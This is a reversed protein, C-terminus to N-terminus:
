KHFMESPPKAALYFWVSKGSKLIIKERQYASTEYEDIFKLEEPTVSIIIGEINGDGSVIIPYTEGEIKINSKVYGKLTDPSGPDTRGFVEKQVGPNKLTGYIFLLEKNNM